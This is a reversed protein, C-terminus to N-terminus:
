GKKKKVPTRLNGVNITPKSKTNIPKKSKNPLGTVLGGMETFTKGVPAFWKAIHPIKPNSEFYILQVIMDGLDHEEAKVIIQLETYDIGNNRTDYMEVPYKAKVTDGEEYLFDDIRRKQEIPKEGIM